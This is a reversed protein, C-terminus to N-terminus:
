RLIGNISRFASSFVKKSDKLAATGRPTISYYKKARRNDLRVHVKIYGANELAAMTNYIDNKVNAGHPFHREKAIKAVHKLMDYTYTREEKVMNLLVLKMITHYMDKTIYNSVVHRGSGYSCEM